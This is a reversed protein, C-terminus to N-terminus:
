VNCESVRWEAGNDHMQVGFSAFHLLQIAIRLPAINRGTENFFRAATSPIVCVRNDESGNDAVVANISLASASICRSYQTLYIRHSRQQVRM